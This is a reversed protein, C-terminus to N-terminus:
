GERLHILIEAFEDAEMVIYTKSVGHNRRKIAAVGIVKAPADPAHVNAAEWNMAETTAETVYGSLNITKENKCEVVVALRDARLLVDGQDDKGRKVMRMAPIGKGLFYAEVDTEFDAGKRKNAKNRKTVDTM